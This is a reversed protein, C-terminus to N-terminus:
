TTVIFFYKETSQLNYNDVGILSLVKFNEV